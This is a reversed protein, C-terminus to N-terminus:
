NNVYADSVFEWQLQLLKLVAMSNIPFIGTYQAYMTMYNIIFINTYQANLSM